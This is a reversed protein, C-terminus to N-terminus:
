THLRESAKRRYIVKGGRDTIVTACQTFEPFGVALAIAIRLWAVLARTSPADVVHHELRPVYYMILAWCGMHIFIYDTGYSLISLVSTNVANLSAVM